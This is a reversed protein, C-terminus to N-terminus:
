FRNAVRTALPGTLLLGRYGSVVIKLPLEQFQSSTTTQKTFKVNLYVPFPPYCCTVSAEQDERQSIYRKVLM